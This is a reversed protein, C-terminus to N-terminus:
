PEIVQVDAKRMKEGFCHALYDVMKTDSMRERELLPLNNDMYLGTFSTETV